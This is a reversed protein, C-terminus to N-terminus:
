SGLTCCPVEIALVLITHLSALRICGAFLIRKRPLSAILEHIRDIAVVCHPLEGHAENPERKSDAARHQARDHCRNQQPSHDPGTSVCSGLDNRFM